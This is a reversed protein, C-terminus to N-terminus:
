SRLTGHTPSWAPCLAQKLNRREREQQGEGWLLFVLLFVDGYFRFGSEGVSLMQGSRKLLKERDNKSICVCKKRSWGLILLM